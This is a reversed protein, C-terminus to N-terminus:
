LDHVTNVTYYSMWWSPVNGARVSICNFLLQEIYIDKLLILIYHSRQKLNCYQEKSRVSIMNKLINLSIKLFLIYGIYGIKMWCSSVSQDGNIRIISLKQIISWIRHTNSAVSFHASRNWLVSWCATSCIQYKGWVVICWSSYTCIVLWM